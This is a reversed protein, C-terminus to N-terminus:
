TREVIIIDGTDQFITKRKIFPYTSEGTTTTNVDSTISIEVPSHKRLPQFCVSYESIRSAGSSLVGVPVEVSVCTAPKVFTLTIGYKKMM